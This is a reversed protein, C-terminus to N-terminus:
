NSNQNNRERNSKDVRAQSKTGPTQLRNAAVIAGELNSMQEGNIIM